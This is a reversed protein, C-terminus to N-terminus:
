KLQTMSRHVKSRGQFEELSWAKREKEGNLGRVSPGCGDAQVSLCRLPFLIVTRCTLLSCWRQTCLSNREWSLSVSSKFFFAINPFPIRPRWHVDSTLLRQAITFIDLLNVWDEPKVQLSVTCM